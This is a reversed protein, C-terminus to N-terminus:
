TELLWQSHYARSFFFFLDAESAKNRVSSQLGLRGGLSVGATHKSEERKNIFTSLNVTFILFSVCWQVNCSSVPVLEEDVGKDGVSSVSSLLHAQRGKILLKVCGVTNCRELAYIYHRNHLKYLNNQVILLHKGARVEAANIKWNISLLNVHTDKESSPNVSHERQVQGSETSERVAAPLQQRWTLLVKHMWHCIVCPEQCSKHKWINFFQAVDTGNLRM